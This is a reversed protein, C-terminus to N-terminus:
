TTALRIEAQAYLHRQRQRHVQQLPRCPSDTWQFAVLYQAVARGEAVEIVVSAASEVTNTRNYSHTWGTDLRGDSSNSSEYSGLFAPAVQHTHHVGSDSGAIRKEVLRRAMFAPEIAVAFRPSPQNVFAGPRPRGPSFIQARACNPSL